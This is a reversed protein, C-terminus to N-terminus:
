GVLPFTTTVLYALPIAQVVAAAWPLRSRRTVTQGYVVLLALVIGILPVLLSLFGPAGLVLVSALLVAVAVARTAIALWWRPGV